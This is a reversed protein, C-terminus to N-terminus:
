DGKFKTDDRYGALLTYEEVAPTLSSDATNQRLIISLYVRSKTVEISSKETDFVVLHNEVTRASLDGALDVIKLGTSTSYEELTIPINRTTSVLPTYSVTYISGPYPNVIQIRFRMPSGSNPSRDDVDGPVTNDPYHKWGSSPESVGNQNDLEQGNEYVTIDAYDTGGNTYFLTQGLDYNEADPSRETLLLREHYITSFNLPLIPFTTTRLLTGNVSLDQKTCWYEISGQFFIDEPTIFESGIDYTTNTLKILGDAEDIYPRLETTRLGLIGMDNLEVPVSIYIGKNDYSTLGLRINDFGTQFEYGYFQDKDKLSIGVLQKIKSSSVMGDLSPSLTGITPVQGLSPESLAQNILTDTDADYEFAAKTSNENRFTLVVKKTTFKRVLFSIPGEILLEPEGLLTITNNGDLYHIAELIIGHKSAPEIEIYNIEKSIGLNLELKINVSTQPNKFLLSQVWYTGITNDILNNINLSPPEVIIESQVTQSDFVQRISRIIHQEKELTPLTLREGVLEISADQNNPFVLNTRPDLFSIFPNGRFMREERSERFTSFNASDFGYTNQNLYEYLNIKAELEAIGARLNKLIVDRIIAEHSKQVTDINTAEEFAAVLDDEVRELMFNYTESSIDANAKAEYLKLTPKLTTATLERLLSELQQSFETVTRIQGANRKKTLLRLIQSTQREKILGSFKDLYQGM